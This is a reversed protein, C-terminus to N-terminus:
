LNASKCRSGEELKSTKTYMNCRVFCFYILGNEPEVAACDSYYACVFLKTMEM